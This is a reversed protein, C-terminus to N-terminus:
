KKEFEIGKQKLFKEVMEDWAHELTKDMNFTKFSAGTVCTLQKGDYHINLYLGQVEDPRVSLAKQEILRDINGHSLSFVFRFRLPTRKGKIVSFCYERLNKWPSYEPLVADTDFFDRQILGDIRFTNFTVIEGEIFSFSDFTDSLLLHAMSGKINTLSFLIMHPEKIDKRRPLPSRISIPDNEATRTACLAIMIGYFLLATM